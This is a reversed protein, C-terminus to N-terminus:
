SHWSHLVFYGGLGGSPVSHALHECLFHWDQGRRVGRLISGSGSGSVHFRTCSFNFASSMFSLHRHDKSMQTVRARPYSQLYPTTLPHQMPGKRKSLPRRRQKKPVNVIIGRDVAIM